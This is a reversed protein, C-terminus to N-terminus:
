YVRLYSFKTGSVVNSNPRFVILSDPKVMYALCTSDVLTATSVGEILRKSVFFINGPLAGSIYIAKTLSTTTFASTDATMTLGTLTTGSTTINGAVLVNGSSDVSFKSTGRSNKLEIPTANMGTNYVYVRQLFTAINRVQLSYFYGNADSVAVTFSILSVLAIAATIGIHRKVLNILKKM